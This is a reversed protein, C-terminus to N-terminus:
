IADLPQYSPILQKVKLSHATNNIIFIDRRISLVTCHITCLLFHNFFTLMYHEFLSCPCNINVCEISRTCIYIIIYTVIENVAHICSNMVIIISRIHGWDANWNSQASFSLSDTRYEHCLCDSWPIHTYQLLLFPATKVFHMVTSSLAVESIESDALGESFMLWPLKCCMVDGEMMNFHIQVKSNLIDMIQLNVCGTIAHMQPSIDTTSFSVECGKCATNGM